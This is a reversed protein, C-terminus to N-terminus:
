VFQLSFVLLVPLQPGILLKTLLTPFVNVAYQIVLAEKVDQFDDLYLENAPVM